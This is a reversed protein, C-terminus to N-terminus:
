VHAAAKSDRDTVMEPHERRFTAAVHCNWCAPLHTELVRPLTEPAIDRWGFTRGDEPRLLAPKHDDWHIEGVPRRCVACSRGEYFDALMKRVACDEPAREIQHVCDQDCDSREPWRTCSRLRLEPEGGAAATAAARAADVEVAVHRRTEPCVVVRKGRMKLYARAYCALARYLAGVTVYLVVLAAAAILGVLLIKLM